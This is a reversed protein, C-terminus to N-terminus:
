GSETRSAPLHLAEHIVIRASFTDQVVEDGEGEREASPKKTEREEEREGGHGKVEKVTEALFGDEDSSSDKMYM